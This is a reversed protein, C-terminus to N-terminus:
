NLHNQLLCDTEKEFSDIHQLVGEWDKNGACQELTLAIKHLEQFYMTVAHGKLLHAVQRVKEIDRVALSEAMDLKGQTLTERTTELMEKYFEADNLIFEMFKKKNFHVQEDEMTLTKSPSNKM